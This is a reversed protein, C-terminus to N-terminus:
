PHHRHRALARRPVRRRLRAVAVADRDAECLCRGGGPPAVVGQSRVPRHDCGTQVAPQRRSDPALNRMQTIGLYAIAQQLNTAKTRLAYASSNACRLLRASLAADLELIQKMEAAGANPDNAVEILRFAIHPLTSIGQIRNCVEPLTPLIDTM